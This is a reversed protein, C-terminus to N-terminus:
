SVKIVEIASMRIRNNYLPSYMFFCNPIPIETTWSASSAAFLNWSNDNILASHLDASGSGNNDANRKYSMVISQSVSGSNQLVFKLGYLGDYNTTFPASPYTMGSSGYDSKPAFVPASGSIATVYLNYYNSGAYYYQGVETGSLNTTSITAGGIFNTGSVGPINSGTSKLGFYMKDTASTVTISENTYSATDNANGVFRFLMGMRIETWSGFDFQRCFSERNGLLLSNENAYTTISAM